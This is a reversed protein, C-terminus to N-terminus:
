IKNDHSFLAEAVSLLGSDLLNFQYDSNEPAISRIIKVNFLIFETDKLCSFGRRAEQNNLLYSKPTEIDFDILGADSVSYFRQFKRWENENM